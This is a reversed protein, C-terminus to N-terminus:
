TPLTRPAGNCSARGQRLRVVNGIAVSMIAILCGGGAVTSAGGPFPVGQVLCWLVGGVYLVNPAVVSAVIIKDTRSMPPIM